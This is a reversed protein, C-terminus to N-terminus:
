KEIYDICKQSGDKFRTIYLVTNYRVMNYLPQPTDLCLKSLAFLFYHLNLGFQETEENNICTHIGLYKPFTIVPITGKEGEDVETEDIETEDIETEDVEEAAPPVQDTTPPVKDAAPPVPDPSSPPKEKPPIQQAARNEMPKQYQWFFTYHCSVSKSNLTIALCKM